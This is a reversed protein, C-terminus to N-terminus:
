SVPHKFNRRASVFEELQREELRAQVRARAAVWKQKLRVVLEHDISASVLEARRALVRKDAEDLAARLVRCTERQRCLASWGQQRAAATFREAGLRGAMEDLEAEAQVCRAEALERERMATALAQEAREKATARLDLVAELSFSKASM